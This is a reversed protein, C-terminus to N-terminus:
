GPPALSTSGADWMGGGGCVCLGCVRVLIDVARFAPPLAAEEMAARMAEIDAVDAQVTHVKSPGGLERQLASLREGRRGTAIIQKPPPPPLPPRDLPRDDPTNSLHVYLYVVRM